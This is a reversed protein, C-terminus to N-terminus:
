RGALLDKLVTMQEQAELLVRLSREPTLHLKSLRRFAPVEAMVPLRQGEPKGIFAHMQAVIVVDVLNPHEQGSEYDWDEAHEAAAAFVPGLGWHRLLAGGIESKLEDILTDLSEPELMLAQDTEAYSIVPIAGIDHLLGALLAEEPNLGPLHQALAYAIAGVERAHEWLRQMAKQLSPQKSQFLERLAYVTVLRRATEIGVRVVADRTSAVESFGRYLPSNAARVLKAAIPPDANIVQAISDANSREAAAAQRVRQAIDPLSPLTLRNAQLDTQFRMLVGYGPDIVDMGSSKPQNVPEVPAGQLLRLLIDQEVALVRAASGAVVTQPRSPRAAIAVLGAPTAAKIRQCAGDSDTIDLAGELLFYVRGDQTGPEILRQGPRLARQEGRSALLVRQDETLRSLPRYARLQDTLQSEPQEM